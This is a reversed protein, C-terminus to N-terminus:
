RPGYANGTGRTGTVMGARVVTAKDALSSRRRRRRKKRRKRHPEGSHELYKQAWKVGEDAKAHLM